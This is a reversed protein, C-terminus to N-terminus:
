KFVMYKMHEYGFWAHHWLTLPNIMCEEHGIKVKGCHEFPMRCSIGDQFEVELIKSTCNWNFTSLDNYNPTIDWSTTKPKESQNYGNTVNQLRLLAAGLLSAMLVEM